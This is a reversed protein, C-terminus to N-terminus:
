PVTDSWASTDGSEFGDAFVDLSLIGLAVAYSNDMDASVDSCAFGGVGDGIVKGRYETWKRHSNNTLQQHQIALCREGFHRQRSTESRAILDTSTTNSETNSSSSRLKWYHHSPRATSSIEVSAASFARSTRTRGPLDQLSSSATSAEGTSGPACATRLLSRATTPAFISLVDTSIWWAISSAAFTGAESIAHQWLRWASM